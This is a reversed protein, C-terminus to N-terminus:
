KENTLLIILSNIPIKKCIDQLTTSWAMLFFIWSKDVTYATAYVFRFFVKKCMIKERLTISLLVKELHKMRVIPFIMLMSPYSKIQAQNTSTQVARRKLFILTIDDLRPHFIHLLFPICVNQPV